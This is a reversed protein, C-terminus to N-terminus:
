QKCEHDLGCWRGIQQRHAAVWGYAARAVSRVPPIRYMWAVSRLLPLRSSIEYVADAGAAVRGSADIYRVGTEFDSQALIPFRQELGPALRPLYEFREDRDLHRIREMQAICFSCEGDYVIVPKEQPM